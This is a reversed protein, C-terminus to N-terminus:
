IAYRMFIYTGKRIISMKWFSNNFGMDILLPEDNQDKNRILGKPFKTSVKCVHM